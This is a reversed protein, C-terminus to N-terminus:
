VHLHKLSSSNPWLGDHAWLGVGTGLDVIKQPHDGIPALHPKDDLIYDAYLKHKIGERMQEIDDNPLGYRGQLFSQYRRLRLTYAFSANSFLLLPYSLFDVSRGQEFSYRLRTTTMATFESPAISEGLDSTVDEDQDAPQQM